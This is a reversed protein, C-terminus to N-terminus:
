RTPCATSSSVQDVMRGARTSRPARPEQLASATQDNWGTVFTTSLTVGADSVLNLVESGPLEPIDAVGGAYSFGTSIGIKM